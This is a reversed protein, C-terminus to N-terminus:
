AMVLGRQLKAPESTVPIATRATEGSGDRVSYGRGWVTGIVDKLGAKAMKSRIKCVFVDVIKVEPEEMGGYLHSLVADKTLVMNKRLMLLRLLEFEKGTLRVVQGNAVVEHQQMNLAVAGVRLISDSHGRSRRVIAGMRALLESSDVTQDVADDAGAAFARVRAAPKLASSLAVVPTAHGAARMRSIFSSGEMDPLGSGLVVMEFEYHRLLDLGEEGTDIVHTNFAASAFIDTLRKAAAVDNEVLLVRM